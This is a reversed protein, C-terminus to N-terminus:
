TWIKEFPTKIKPTLNFKKKPGVGNLFIGAYQMLDNRNKQNVESDEGNSALYTLHNTLQWVTKDIPTEKSDFTLYNSEKLEKYISSFADDIFKVDLYKNINNIDLYSNELIYDKVLNFENLSAPTIYAKKIQTIFNNTIYNNEKLKNLYDQVKLENNKLTRDFKINFEDFDKSIAGNTCIIRLTYPAIIGAHEVTNQFSLGTYFQEIDKLGYIKDDPLNDINFEKRKEPITNITIEGIDNIFFDLVNLENKAIISFVFILFSYNSIFKKHSRYGKIVKDVENNNKDFIITIPENNNQLIHNLIQLTQKDDQLVNDLKNKIGTTLNLTKILSKFGNSNIKLNLDNNNQDKFEIENKSLIRLKNLYTNNKVSEKDIALDTLLKIDQQSIEQLKKGKQLLINNM